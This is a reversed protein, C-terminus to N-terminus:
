NAGFLQNLQDATPMQGSGVMQMLQDRVVTSDSGGYGGMAPLSNSSQVERPQAADFRQSDTVASAALWNEVHGLLRQYEARSFVARGGNQEATPFLPMSIRNAAIDLSKSALLDIIEKGTSALTLEKSINPARGTSMTNVREVVQWPGIVAYAKQVEPHEIIEVCQRIHNGIRQAAFQAYAWGHLSAYGLLDRATKRVGADQPQPKRRDREAGILYESLFTARERESVASCFRLLYDDLDKIRDYQIQRAAPDLRDRAEWVYPDYLRGAAGNIALVGERWDQASQDVASMLGARDLHMAAGIMSCSRINTPEYVGQSSDETVIDPLELSDYSPTQGVFDDFASRVKAALNDDVPGRELVADSVGALEQVTAGEDGKIASIEEAIEVYVDIYRIRRGNQAALRFTAMTEALTYGEDFQDVFADDFGPSGPDFYSDRILAGTVYARHAKATPTSLDVDRDRFLRKVAKTYKEADFTDPLGREDITFDDAPNNDDAMSTSDKGPDDARGLQVRVASLLQDDTLEDTRLAAPAGGEGAARAVADHGLVTMLRDRLSRPNTGVPDTVDKRVRGFQQREASSLTPWLGAIWQRLDDYTTDKELVLEAQDSPYSDPFLTQFALHALREEPTLDTM